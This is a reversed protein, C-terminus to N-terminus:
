NNPDVRFCNWTSIGYNNIKKKLINNEFLEFITALKHFLVDKSLAYHNEINTLYMIDITSLQLNVRSTDISKQIFHPNLSHGNVIEDLEILGKQM